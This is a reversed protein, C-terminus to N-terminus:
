FEFEIKEEARNRSSSSRPRLPPPRASARDPRGRRFFKLGLRFVEVEVPELLDTGLM